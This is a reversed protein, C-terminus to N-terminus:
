AAVFDLDLLGGLTLCIGESTLHAVGFNGEGLVLVGDKLALGISDDDDDDDGELEDDFSIGNEGITLFMLKDDEDLIEEQPVEQGLVTVKELKWTGYFQDIQDAKIGDEHSRAVLAGLVADLEADTEAAAGSETAAEESVASETVAEGSEAASLDFGLGGLLSTLDTDKSSLAEDSFDGLTGLLSSLAADKSIKVNSALGGLLGLLSSLDADADGESLDSLLDSLDDPTDKAYAPVSIMVMSAVLILSLFKKM